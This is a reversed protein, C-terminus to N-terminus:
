LGKLGEPSPTGFIGDNTWEVTRCNDLNMWGLITEAAQANNGQSLCCLLAITGVLNNKM